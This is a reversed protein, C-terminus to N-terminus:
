DALLSICSSPSIVSKKQPPRALLLKDGTVLIAGPESALLNWLHVDGLDPAMEDSLLVEERWIANATLETLLTDIQQEDLKHLRCLKPRLLVARYEQLLDASMLYVITGDFMANVISVTPSNTEGSILGSVLVNTDVIFVRPVRM